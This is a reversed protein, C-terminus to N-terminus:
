SLVAQPDPNVQHSRQVSLALHFSNPTKSGLLTKSLSLVPGLLALLQRPGGLIELSHGPLDNEKYGPIGPVTLM